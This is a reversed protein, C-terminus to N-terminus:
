WSVVVFVVSLTKRRNGPIRDFKKLYISVNIYKYIVYKDGIVVFLGGDTEFIRSDYCFQVCTISKKYKEHRNEKGM